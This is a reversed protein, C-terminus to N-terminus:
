EILSLIFTEWNMEEGRKDKEKKLREFDKIAFTMNLNKLGEM